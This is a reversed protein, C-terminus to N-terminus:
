FKIKSVKLNYKQLFQLFTNLDPNNENQNKLQNDM